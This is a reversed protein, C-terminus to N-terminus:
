LRSQPRSNTQDPTLKIQFTQDYAYELASSDSRLRNSRLQPQDPVM